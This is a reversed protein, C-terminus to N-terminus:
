NIFGADYAYRALQVRNELHLKQLINKMHNKVTHESIDLNIAIDKNSIGKAVLQLIEKERKTLIEMEQDRSKAYSFEKLLQHALHKSMPAEDLAIAKLYDIWLEPSLNKLLYGQAGRKLAEFLHAIDDSVTVIVVKIYPFKAKLQQTTELGNLGYMNIDMLVIDPMYLECLSIAEHGSSAEGVYLFLDSMGLIMKMGERAESSDDVILIRFPQSSHTIDTHVM